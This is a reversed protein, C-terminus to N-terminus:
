RRHEHRAKHQNAPPTASSVIRARQAREDGRRDERRPDARSGRTTAVDHLIDAAGGLRPTRAMGGREVGADARARSPPVQNLSEAESANPEGSGQGAIARGYKTNPHSVASITFWVIPSNTFQHIPSNHILVACKM